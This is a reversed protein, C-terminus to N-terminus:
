WRAPLASASAADTIANPSIGADVVRRFVEGEDGGGEQMAVDPM